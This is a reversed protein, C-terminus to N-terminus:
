VSVRVLQAICGYLRKITEEGYEKGYIESVSHRIREIVGSPKWGHKLCENYFDLWDIQLQRKQCEDVVIELPLGVSSVISFINKIM